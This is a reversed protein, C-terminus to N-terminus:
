RRPAKGTHHTSDQTKQASMVAVGRMYEYCSSCGFKFTQRFTNETTGCVPCYKGDAGKIVSVLDATSLHNTEATSLCRDCLYIAVEKGGVVAYEVTVAQRGCIDCFGM